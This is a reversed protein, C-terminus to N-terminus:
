FSLTNTWVYTRPQQYWTANLATLTAHGTTANPLVQIDASVPMKDMEVAFRTISASNLAGYSTDSDAQVEFASLEVIEGTTGATAPSKPPLNSARASPAGPATAAVSQGALGPAAFLGAAVTM